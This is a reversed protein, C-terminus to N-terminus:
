PQAKFLTNRLFTDPRQYGKARVGNIMREKKSWGLRQMVGSLRRAHESNAEHSALRMCEWLLTRSPIFDDSNKEVYGAVIEELPDAVRRQEQEGSAFAWLDEPLELAKATSNSEWQVRAEAWLQDRVAALAGPLIKPVHLPLFRRAGTLDRLYDVSNTTGILIVRRPFDRSDREYALRGRDVERSLFAKFAEIDARKMASLEEVEVVWKGILAAIVDKDNPDKNPLGAQTWEGGLIRVLTSKYGGQPGELVPMTDFKIGPQFARAVGALLILRGVARTYQNDTCGTYQVLWSDLRPTGDWVLGKLFDVVSNFSNKLALGTVVDGITTISVELGFYMRCLTQIMVATLDSYVDMAKPYTKKLWKLEGGVIKKNQMEDYRFVFGFSNIVAELNGATPKPKGSETRDMPPIRLAGDDTIVPEFVEQASPRPLQGGADLVHMYLTGLTIGGPESATLSDWRYRIIEGADTHQPDSTSWAVFVECGDSGGAVASHSAMLIELWVDHTRFETVDLQDLCFKLQAATIQGTEGSVEARLPKRIAALLNAPILGPSAIPVDNVWRYLNGPKLGTKKDGPHISGAAVVQRGLGKFEIGPFEPLGNKCRAPEPLRMYYHAGGSGTRVYPYDDLRFNFQLELEFRVNRGPPEARPDYDVVLDTERMRIGINGGKRIHDRLQENTYRKKVWAIDIPTKGKEKDGHVYDWGHLPLMEWGGDKYRRLQQMDVTRKTDAM